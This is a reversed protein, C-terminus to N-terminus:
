RSKRSTLLIYYKIMDRLFPELLRALTRALEQSRISLVRFYQFLFNFLM